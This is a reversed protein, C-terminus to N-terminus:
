LTKCNNHKGTKGAEHVQIDKLGSVLLSDTPVSVPDTQTLEFALRKDRGFM